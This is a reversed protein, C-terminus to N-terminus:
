LEAAVSKVLFPADDPRGFVRNVLVYKAEDKYASRNLNTQLHKMRWHKEFFTWKIDPDVVSQFCCVIRAAVTVTCKPTPRLYIDVFGADCLRQWYHVAMDCAVAYYRRDNRIVDVTHRDVPRPARKHNLQRPRDTDPEIDVSLSSPSHSAASYGRHKAREAELTNRLEENERKLDANQRELQASAGLVSNLRNLLYQERRRLALIDLDRREIIDLYEKASSSASAEFEPSNM